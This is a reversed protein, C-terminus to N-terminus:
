HIGRQRFRNYIETVIKAGTKSPSAFVLYYVVAGTSNRMPLPEPVDEFGAVERLRQQLAGIVAENSAKEEMEGFLGPQKIYASERWSRDGWSRDIRALQVESVKDPNRWLVNMNADMIMFSYFIEVSRMQRAARLVNWDVNLGYPDLLCLARADDRASTKM